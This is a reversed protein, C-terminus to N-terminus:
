GAYNKGKDAREFRAFSRMLSISVAGLSMGLIGAIERYRLGEARLYLCYQDREPLVHLVSRLFTQRQNGMMQEEPNPTPDLQKEVIREGSEM